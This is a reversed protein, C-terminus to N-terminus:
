SFLAANLVGGASVTTVLEIPQPVILGAMLKYNDRLALAKIGIDLPSGKLNGTRRLQPQSVM